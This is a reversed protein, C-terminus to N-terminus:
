DIDTDIALAAKLQIKSVHASNLQIVCSCFIGKLYMNSCRNQKDCVSCEVLGCWDKEIIFKVHMAQLTM